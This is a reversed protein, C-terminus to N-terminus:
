GRREKIAALLDAIVGACPEAALNGKGHEGLSVDNAEMGRNGFLVM